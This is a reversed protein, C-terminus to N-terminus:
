AICGPINHDIITNEISATDARKKEKEVHRVKRLNYRVRM